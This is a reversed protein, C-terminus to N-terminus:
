QAFSCLEIREEALAASVAPDCLVSLEIPREYAYSSALEPESGPHCGIESVGPGLGRILALLHERSIGEPYPEGKGRQGYFDGVYAISPACGRV